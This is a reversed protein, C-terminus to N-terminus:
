SVPVAVFRLDGKSDEVRLLVAKRGSKKVKEISKAVDQPDSVTDQAAEIIVDGVKLGKTAAPSQPDIAEIVVGTIKADFGYKKRLEDTLPSLRLGIIASGKPDEDETDSGSKLDSANDDDEELRGVTVQTSEQKGKRLLEVDVAKGIPAQSVIKPLGRMSTVEKGDFKLIVDGPQLGAKSAPSDPTVAAVLAGQNEDLGLTEAIEDTVSQIKVGL